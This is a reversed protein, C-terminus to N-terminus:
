RLLNISNVNRYNADEVIKRKVKNVLQDVDYDDELKEVTIDIDYYNDGFKGNAFGNGTLVSDLIDRLQIFNQTDKSNLVLEPRTKTGDLWAPGTFDALGGTAFQEYSYAMPDRLSLHKWYDSLSNEENSLYWMVQAAAESGLKSTLSKEIKDPTNGWGTQAGYVHIAAAIAKQLNYAYSSSTASGNSSIISDAEHRGAFMAGSSTLGVQASNLAETQKKMWEDQGMASLNDFGEAKKLLEILPSDIVNAVGGNITENILSYVDNWVEASDEYQKQQAELIEIQKRRQEEANQNDKELKDLQQDILTDSYNQYDDKLEKELKAIEVANAGSTDRRLYALRTEKDSIDEEKKTNDRIQRELNVQERLHELIESNTNAFEDAATQLADIQDQTSNLLADKVENEFSIYQDIYDEKLSEVNDNIEDIKDSADEMEKSYEELYKIYEAVASGKESQGPTKALEDLAKTDVIIRGNKYEAYKTVGWSSFSKRNEGEGYMRSALTSLLSRATDRRDQESTKQLNYKDLLNFYKRSLDTMSTFEKKLTKQFNRELKDRERIQENIKENINYLETYTNQWFKAEEKNGIGDPNQAGPNTYATGSKRGKFGLKELIKESSNSAVNGASGTTGIELEMKAELDKIQKDFAKSASSALEEAKKELDGGFWEDIWNVSGYYTGRAVAEAILQGQKLAALTQADEVEPAGTGKAISEGVTKTTEEGADKLTMKFTKENFDFNTDSFQADTENLLTQLQTRAQSDDLGLNIMFDYYKSLDLEDGEKLSGLEENLSNLLEDKLDDQLRGDNIFDVINIGDVEDNVKDLLTNLDVGITNAISELEAKDYFVEDGLKIGSKLWTQLADGISLKELDNKLTASETELDAIMAKAVDRSVGLKGMLEDTLQEISTLKNLFVNISGDDNVSFLNSKSAAQAWLNYFNGNFQGVLEQAKQAMISMDGKADALMKNYNDGFLLKELDILKEDGYAGLTTLEEISKKVDSFFSGVETISRGSKFNDVLEFTDSLVNQAAYLKELVVVFDTTKSTVKITGDALGTYYKALTNTSLGTNDLVDKLKSGETAMSKIEEATIKGDESLKKLDDSSLSDYFEKAQATASYMSHTTEMMQAAFGAQIINGSTLMENLKKAGDIASDWNTGDGITEMLQSFSEQNFEVEQGLKKFAGEIAPGAQSNKDTLDTILTYLKNAENYTGALETASKGFINDFKTDIADQQDEISKAQARIAKATAQAYDGYADTNNEVSDATERLNQANIDLDGTLAKNLEGNTSAVEMINDAVKEYPETAYYAELEAAIEKKQEKEKDSKFEYEAGIKEEYLKKLGDLVSTTDTIDTVGEKELFEAFEKNEKVAFDVGIMEKTTGKGFNWLKNFDTKAEKTQSLTIAEATMESLTKYTDKGGYKSFLATKAANKTAESQIEDVDELYQQLDNYFNGILDETTEPSLDVNKTGYKKRSVAHITNIAAFDSFSNGFLYPVISDATAIEHLKKSDTNKIYQSLEKAITKNIGLPGGYKESAFQESEKEIESQAVELDKGVVVRQAQAWQKQKTDTLNKLAEQDIELGGNNTIRLAKALEPYKEILEFVKDNVNKQAEEWLRTGETLKSLTEILGNYEDTDSLLDDYAQKAEQAAKRAEQAEKKLRETKEAATEQSAILVALVAIVATIAVVILAYPGLSAWAAAGMETFGEIGIKTCVDILGTVVPLIAGLGILATGILQVVEVADEDAGMAEMIASVALLSGGVVTAGKGLSNLGGILNETGSTASETSGKVKDNTKVFDETKQKTDDLNEGLKKVADGEEKISNEKEPKPFKAKIAAKVEDPKMESFKKKEGGTGKIGLFSGVKDSIGQGISTKNFLKKGTTFASFVVGLKLLGNNGTLKNTAELLKTLWDVIDKIVGNDALSMTFTNWANELRNLKSELSELTKEYQRQSAGNSNNAEEVLYQMRANDQMLAIFRSQQRSGAAMTAIYRQQVQDLSDWKSSLEMFIDDLGKAGVLYENLNIGATRLAASVKNVNIEEGETDTGLLEGKSYLSKVESFRAIVTKLATGATEASERTTEIIQSLFAATNEFSMNANNALSAVKTMATSIEDTNSATIAALNSYVDNINQANAETIEMNFGRLANTMRDTADAADLGAIRAMKLTENSVAIVENTKLGQQYYLTASEYADHISVGLKSARDAYEPLQSWMDGVSFDTVVATETMVEDLDKVTEYASRVSRKFLSIANSLGFFEKVRTGVKALESNLEQSGKATEGLGDSMNGTEQSFRQTLGVLNAFTKLLEQYGNEELTQVAQKQAELDKTAQQIGDNTKLSEFEQRLQRVLNPYDKLKDSKVRSSANELVKLAKEAESFNGSSLQEKFKGLSKTNNLAEVKKLTEGLSSNLGNESIKSKLNQTLQTLLNNAQELDKTDVAFSEKLMDPNIKSMNKYLKDTYLSIQNLSKTFNSVEGKNKFGNKLALSAKDAGKTINNFIETFNDKMQQPMKIQNLVGQIQKANSVVDSIDAVTKLKIQVTKSDM